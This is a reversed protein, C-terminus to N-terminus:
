QTLIKIAAEEKSLIINTSIERYVPLNCHICYRMWLRSGKFNLKEISWLHIGNYSGEGTCKPVKM